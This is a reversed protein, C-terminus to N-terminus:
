DPNTETLVFCYGPFMVNIIIEIKILLKLNNGTHGSNEVQVEGFYDVNKLVFVPIDNNQVSDSEFLAIPSQITGTLCTGPWEDTIQIVNINAYKIVSQSVKNKM